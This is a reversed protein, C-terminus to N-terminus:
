HFVPQDDIGIAMPFEAVEVPNTEKLVPFPIWQETSDQFRVLLKWGESTKRMHRQGSKTIMCKDTMPVARGDKKYDIISEMLAKSNGESDIQTYM